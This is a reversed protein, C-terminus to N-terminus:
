ETRLSKIPNATAAKVAQFSVTILAILLAASGALAFVEWRVAVRYAFGQLWKNMTWWAIPFSVLVAMLVPKLFDISLLKVISMVRAGLIKRIGIEKIRQGAAYAVLAFLGLCAIFIALAAFTIFIQGTRQEAYYIHNFTADLFSYEFPQGPAAKQWKNKIMSLVSATGRTNLRVIISNRERGQFLALPAIADRLSSFHFNKLIGIVHYEVLERTAIDSLVYLKKNLLSKAPRGKSTLFQAAAENLLIGTSDTPLLSSFNRGEALRIDLTPIYAEDVYWSQMALANKPDLAPSTFFANNNRDGEVPLYGTMSVNAVGSLQRLKEKFARAYTKLGDTNHIVVVQQRNFGLDKQRIFHLQRYIVLTGIILVISVSFQLGVLTNRLWVGKFGRILSGKLVEVPRFASLRLAPYAGALLGVLVISLFLLVLMSPQFLAKTPINKGALQNFYPLLPWTILLATVLAMFSLLLSETLFQEVLDRRRSGLVKRVGVEKARNASRATFLNVFNVCAIILIFFAVLSFIYVYQIDGNTELEGIKSVYLHISTLPVLSLRTFNGQKAFEDSSIGLVSKLEPGILRNLMITLEEELKPVDAGKKLLLYTNFNQSLWDDSRSRKSEAFALIFDFHFHSNEPIDKMVGTIRYVSTDNIVMDQGAVDTRNFYKRAITET